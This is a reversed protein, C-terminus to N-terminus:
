FDVAKGIYGGYAPIALSALVSLIAIVIVTEIITFAAQRQQPAPASAFQSM